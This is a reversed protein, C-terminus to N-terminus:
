RTRRPPPPRWCRAARPRFSRARTASRVALARHAPLLVPAQGSFPRIMWGPKGPPASGARWLGPGEALAHPSGARELLAVMEDLAQGAAVVGLDPAPANEPFLVTGSAPFLRPRRTGFVGNGPVQLDTELTRKLLAFLDDSVPM